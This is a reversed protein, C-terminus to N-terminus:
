ISNLKILDQIFEERKIKRYSQLMYKRYLNCLDNYLPQLIPETMGQKNLKYIFDMYVTTLGVIDLNYVYIDRKDNPTNNILLLEVYYNILLTNIGDKYTPMEILKLINNTFKYDDTEVVKTYNMYQIVFEECLNRDKKLTKISHQVSDNLLLYSYPQNFIFYPKYYMINSIGWDILRCKNDKDLLINGSKIDHHYINHNNIVNIARTYLEILKNNINKFFEYTIVPTDHIVRFLNTGKYPINMINLKIEESIVKHNKFLHCKEKNKESIRSPECLFANLVFYNEYNPILPSISEKIKNIIQMEHENDEVIQLKSIYKKTVKKTGKKNICKLPPYFVCSYGGTDLLSM